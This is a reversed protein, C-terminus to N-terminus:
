YAVVASMNKKEEEEQLHMNYLWVLITSLWENRIKIKIKKTGKLIQQQGFFVDNFFLLKYSYSFSTLHKDASLRSDGSCLKGPVRM